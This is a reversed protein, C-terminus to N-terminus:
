LHDKLIKSIRGNREVIREKVSEPLVDEALYIPNTLLVYREGDYVECRVFGFDDVPVTIKSKFKRGSVPLAEERMGNVVWHVEWGPRCGNMRFSLEAKKSDILVRGM